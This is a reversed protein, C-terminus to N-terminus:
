SRRTRTRNNLWSFVYFYAIWLPVSLMYYMLARWSWWEGAPRIALVNPHWSFLHSRWRTWIATVESHRDQATKADNFVRESNRKFWWWSDENELEVGKDAKNRMYIYQVDRTNGRADPDSRRVETGSITGTTWTPRAYEWGFWLPIGVVLAAIAAVAGGTRWLIFAFLLIALLLVYGVSLWIELM